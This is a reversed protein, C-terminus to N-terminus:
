QSLRTFEFSVSIAKVNLRDLNKSFYLWNVGNGSYGPKCTCKFSGETNNCDKEDADCNHQETICENVDAFWAYSQIM